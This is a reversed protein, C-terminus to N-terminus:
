LLSSLFNVGCTWLKKSNQRVSTITWFTRVPGVRSMGTKSGIRIDFSYVTINTDTHANDSGGFKSVFSSFENEDPYKESGMFLMHECFHALGGISSPEHFGGVEVCMAAASIKQPAGEDDEEDGEDDEEIEAEDEEPGIEDEVEEVEAEGEADYGHRDKNPQSVRHWRSM